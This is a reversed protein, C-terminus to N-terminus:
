NGHWAGCESDPMPYPEDWSEAIAKHPAQGEEPPMMLRQRAWQIKNYVGVADDIVEFSPGILLGLGPWPVGSLWATLPHSLGLDVIGRRGQVRVLSIDDLAALEYSEAKRSAVGSVIIVRLNTLGYYTCKRRLSDALFRGVLLYAGLAVFPIQVLYGAYGGLLFTFDSWIALGTWVISLPVVLLDAGRLRVGQRPKGAWILEEDEYLEPVIARRATTGLIHIM